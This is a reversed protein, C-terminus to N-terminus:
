EEAPNQATGEPGQGEGVNPTMVMEDAAIEVEPAIAQLTVLPQEGLAHEWHVYLVDEIPEGTDADVVLTGTPTGDSKIKIKM